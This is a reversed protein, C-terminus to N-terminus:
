YLRGFNKLFRVKEIAKVAKWWNESIAFEKAYKTNNEFWSWTIDWVGNQPRTDILYDIETQVISENDKYFINDPSNIYNSPRVGYNVWKATNREISEYVLKKVTKISCDYNFQSTLGIKNITDLLVCYGGIGMDGFNNATNLKEIVYELIRMAKKYLESNKKAFRIIFSVLETTVGLSEIENAKHDYTWWPAHAYDNNSPISFLWGNETCFAGSELYKFIGQIIPNQVDYFDISKLINIANLTTYPVSNPNWNDPELANGFGGDSNQYVSLNSLVADKNGNEFSYQWLSLELPRANRYIWLRIEKFAKNGLINLGDGEM